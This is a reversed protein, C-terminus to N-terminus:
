HRRALPPVTQSFNFLPMLRKVLEEFGFAAFILLAADVPLRYRILAWSLLHILTYISMFLYLLVIAPRQDPHEPNRVLKISLWLGYLMFPLALGFSGVRAINSIIGSESSPWFKFFERSRSVSLLIFRGPDDIIFGIGQKLLARDLEAENLSRLKEPILEYYGQAGSPLLSVYHTGYIPHNGWFFAFGVNTNLPVFTHFAQYNRITWPLILIM